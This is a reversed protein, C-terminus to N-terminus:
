SLEGELVLRAPRFAKHKKQSTRFWSEFRYRPEDRLRVAGCAVAPAVNIPLWEQWICYDFVRRLKPVPAPRFRQLGILCLVEVAPFANTELQMDNPAFGVDRSHANGARRADFYFPEVKKSSTEPDKVVMACDFLRENHLSEDAIAALMAQAIRPGNMTGAWTKLDRASADRWWDLVLRGGVSLPTAADSAEEEDDDQIAASDERKLGEKCTRALLSPLTEETEVEFAGSRFRALVERSSSRSALEFLGCAAFYQGPNAVDLPVSISM